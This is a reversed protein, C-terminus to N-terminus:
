SSSLRVPARGPWIKLRPCPMRGSVGTSFTFATTSITRSKRGQVASDVSKFSTRSALMASFRLGVVCTCPVSGAEILHMGRLYCSCIWLRSISTSMAAALRLLKPWFKVSSWGVYSTYCQWLGFFPLRRTSALRSGLPAWCPRTWVGMTSPHREARFPSQPAVLRSPSPM